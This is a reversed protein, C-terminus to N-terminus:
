RSRSASDKRKSLSATCGWREGKPSSTRTKWCLPLHLPPQGRHRPKREVAERTELDAILDPCALKLYAIALHRLPLAFVPFGCGDTGLRIHEEPYDALDAFAALAEQQLPHEPEFYDDTSLGRVKSLALYGLQKGACNHFLRRKAKGSALCAFKPEDNLPYTPSTLLEEELIGTKKM